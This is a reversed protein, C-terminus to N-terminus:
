AEKLQKWNPAYTLAEDFKGLAARSQGQIALADGWGKLADAFHPSERHAAEFKAAAGACLFRTAMLFFPSFGVLAFGIVLYTSGWILWTAALCGLILPSFPRPPTLTGTSSTM